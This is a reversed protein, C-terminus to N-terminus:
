ALIVESSLEIGHRNLWVLYDVMKAKLRTQYVPLSRSFDNLSSGVFSALGILLRLSRPMPATEM